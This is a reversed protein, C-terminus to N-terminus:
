LWCKVNLGQKNTKSLTWSIIFVKLALGVEGKTDVVIGCCNSYWYTKVLKRFWLTYIKHQSTDRHM